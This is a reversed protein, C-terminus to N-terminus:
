EMEGNLDFAHFYYAVWRQGQGFEEKNKTRHVRRWEEAAAETSVVGVPFDNQCLVWVRM